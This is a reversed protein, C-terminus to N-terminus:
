RRPHFIRVSPANGDGLVAVVAGQNGAAGPGQRAVEDDHGPDPHDDPHRHLDGVRDDERGAGEHRGAPRGARRSHRRDRADLVHVADGQLEVQRPSGAARLPVGDVPRAVLMFVVVVVIGGVLYQNMLDFDVQAGLLIFIFMRMIFATTMVITTWSRAAEGPEMKFGFADKNGLVIGFVFVAMFGSAQLGDAGLYAGIVAMLTVVPAYEALFGFKEHAILLAALYGLVGGAVLGIGAQKLLDLLSASLSFEGSGMAVGLVAFTVIAGIADNFASESMVTQAVRDRIKVQRFVPVLTAPDTSAITAGLLLAVILPVGLLYYAAVGTIAATILVGVTALVVITIWM